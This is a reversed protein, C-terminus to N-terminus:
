SRCNTLRIASDRLPALAALRARYADAAAIRIAEEMCREEADLVIASVPIELAEALDAIKSWTPNRRGREIGSLYTPHMGADMALGEITLRRTNRLARITGGLDDNHVRLCASADPIALSIETLQRLPRLQLM